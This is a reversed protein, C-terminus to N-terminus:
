VGTMASLQDDGFPLQWSTALLCDNCPLALPDKNILQYGIM